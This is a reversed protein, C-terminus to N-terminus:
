RTVANMTLRGLSDGAVRYLPAGLDRNDALDLVAVFETAEGSNLLMVQPEGSSNLEVPRGEIWLRLRIEEPLAYQILADAASPTQWQGKEDLSLITYSTRSFRIGRPEGNLIAEQQHLEILATLRRAEEALREKVGGGVSLLAFSTIIGILVLVVMIELLTFGRALLRLSSM